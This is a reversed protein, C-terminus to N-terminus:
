KHHENAFKAAQEIQEMAAHMAKEAQEGHGGLDKRNAEIAEHMAKHAACLDQAAKEMNPHHPFQPCAFVPTGILLAAVLMLKTM